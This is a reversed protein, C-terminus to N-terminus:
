GPTTAEPALCPAAVRKRLLRHVAFAGLAAVLTMAGLLLASRTDGGQMRGLSKGLFQAPLIHAPGWVMASCVDAVVFRTAAMGSMGAALPVTCRLVPLFRCIAVSLWGYRGFFAEARAMLGSRGRLPWVLRLRGGYRHGVWFSLCDGLVAGLIAVALIPATPLGALAAAGAVAMLIPTGPILIGLVAVAEVIAALFAILVALAPHLSVATSAMNILSWM